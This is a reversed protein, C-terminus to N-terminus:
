EGLLIKGIAQPVEIGQSWTFLLKPHLIKIDPSAIIMDVEAITNEIIALPIIRFSGNYCWLIPAKILNEQFEHIDFSLLERNSCVINLKIHERVEIM